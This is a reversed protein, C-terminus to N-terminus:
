GGIVKFEAPETSIGRATFKVTDVFGEVFDVKFDDEFFVETIDLDSFIDSVVKYTGGSSLMENLAQMLLNPYQHEETDILIGRFSIQKPKLGFNEIVTIDSRDIDTKVVHKGWGFSIMPPTGMYTYDTIKQNEGLEKLVGQDGFGFGKNTQSNILLINAFRTDTDTYVPIDVLNSWVRNAGAVAINAAVYGFGAKYREIVQTISISSM